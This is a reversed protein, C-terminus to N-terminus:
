ANRSAFIKSSKFVLDYRCNLFATNGQLLFQPVMYCIQSFHLDRCEMDHNMNLEQLCAPAQCGQASHVTFGM